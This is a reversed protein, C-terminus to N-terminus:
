AANGAKRASRCLTASTLTAILLVLAYDWISGERLVGVGVAALHGVLAAGGTWTVRRIRGAACGAGWAIPALAGTAGGVVLPMISTQILWPFFLTLM